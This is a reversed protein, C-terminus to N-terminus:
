AATGKESSSRGAAPHSQRSPEGGTSPSSHVGRPHPNESSVRERQTRPGFVRRLVKLQAETPPRADKRLEAIRADIRARVEPSLTM